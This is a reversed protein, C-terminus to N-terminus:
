REYFVREVVARARRSRRRYEDEFAAAEGPGYGLVRSVASLVRVDSPLADSSRGTVLVVANRVANALDWSAQLADRDGEDLVGAGVAADLAARTRTTRLAPVDAAHRLQLLQVTWEVDALGGPGLKLHTSPDAGRPLRESEVRAKIRRVERLQEATLGGSPWRLPDVLESFREGLRADGCCPAARLLAQREWIEGWRRYYAAYSALTRVLPGQRGEPRLNPDITLAPEPSPMELLRRMENAVARACETAAAEDAGDLPDHVFLVDADSAYGMERGGLRGMGIVAIRTCLPEQRAAEVARVSTELAGSLSAEAVATLPEGVETSSVLGVLDAAATRFLERRRMARVGGIAAVPDTHRRVGALVEAELPERSRPALEADDGLAAVAEPARLLLETAYRSSALVTAMREAAAREDRLLRLYWHTEGLADSVKRFGALGADPEPGDAFWGLLVPLLTRQIAARRSVGRTLAELHRLAGAPDAYGLAELRQRAAHPTLRVEEGPLRAVATLLPRYFLKEHLRRVERAHRQWNETLEGAQRFGLSRALPRLDQERTPLVHTRRLQRLQLRHELTRLFRYAADLVAGDERGVYGGDILAALAELTNPSRLTDDARGHVLQLLQVAFEVDRLGGPGLKLQREAEGLRLNDEVRRRMRRVDDVFGERDAAQWVLPQVASLYAEALEADGAVHRAKLLAQFEWTEAWAEYYARHSALTRVLPGAKGEPRLAADVPWITGETTHDSCVRILRTALATAARLAATEDTGGAPEAVFIVDVDSVYNLEAGGAKGMGIVALRCQEAEAPLEHRAIALAADLTAAALGALESAVPAFALEDTLDLAALRLLQRRYEVRLEDPDAAPGLAAGLEPPGPRRDADVDRLDRWHGPHRVLHDGLATSFGLVTLLRRRLQDETRMATILEHRDPAARLLRALATLALDPDCTRSLALLLEEDGAVDALDPDALERDAAAANEFGARVLWGERTTARRAGNTM